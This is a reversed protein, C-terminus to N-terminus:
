ADLHIYTQTPPLLFHCHICTNKFCFTLVNCDFGYSKFSPISNAIYYVSWKNKLVKSFFVANSCWRLSKLSDTFFVHCPSLNTSHWRNISRIQRLRTCLHHHHYHRNNILYASQWSGNRIMPRGPNSKSRSNNIKDNKLSKKQETQTIEKILDHLTTLHPECKKVSSLLNM